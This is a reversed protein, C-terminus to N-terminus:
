ANGRMIVAVVADLREGMETYTMLGMGAQLLAGSFALTLAEVVDDDAGEGLASRFRSLFETGIRLRLREVDPDTGLLASRAGAAVEPADELLRSTARGVSQVREVRTDGEPQFEQAVLRRWFVEAFLHNKSAFYTYATAASVGARLAVTRITLAEVGVARLEEAGAGLLKEVTETQRANLGQRPTNSVQSSM